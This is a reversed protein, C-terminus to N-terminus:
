MWFAVPSFSVHKSLKYSKTIRHITTQLEGERNYKLGFMTIHLLFGDRQGRADQLELGERLVSEVLCFKTDGMYTLTASSRRDKRFLKEKIMKWDPLTTSTSGCSPVQCSCIYGDAHLGVWADLESDFYGQGEFPLVWEGHCRWESQRSDFSFTRFLSRSGATMFITHGDPHLAYATVRESGAFPLPSPVSKWSWDLTPISMHPDKSGDTSMVEFSHEGRLSNNKLAYLQMNATAVFIHVGFMMSDSLRQGIAVGETHTEYVFTGPDRRSSIFINSGLATFDMGHGPVPSMLRLVSPELDLDTSTELNDVDIKRITFGREWDDVALYLFKQKQVPRMMKGPRLCYNEQVQRRKSMEGEGTREESKIKQDMM